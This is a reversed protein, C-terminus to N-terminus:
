ILRPGLRLPPRAQILIYFCLCTTIRSMKFWSLEVNEASFRFSFNWLTSKSSWWANCDLGIRRKVTLSNSQAAKWSALVTLATASKQYESMWRLIFLELLCYIHGSKNLPKNLSHLYCLRLFPTILKVLMKKYTHM